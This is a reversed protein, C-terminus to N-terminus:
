APCPTFGWRLGMTVRFRSAIGLFCSDPLSANRIGRVGSLVAVAPHLVVRPQASNCGGSAICGGTTRQICGVSAFCGVTTRKNCGMSAFCGGTTRSNCGGSAICGRTTSFQLGCICLLGRNHESHLRRICLLGRNDECHLGRICYLGRNDEFQLGRICVAKRNCFHNCRVTKICGNTIPMMYGDTAHCGNTM